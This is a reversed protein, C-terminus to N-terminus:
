FVGGGSRIVTKGTGFLDYAFGVRPAFNDLDATEGTPPFGIGNYSDGVFFL